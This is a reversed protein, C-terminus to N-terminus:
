HRIFLVYVLVALSNVLTLIAVKGLADRMADPVFALPANLLELLRIVPSVLRPSAVEREASPLPAAAVEDAVKAAAEQKDAAEAEAALDNIRLADREAASMVGDLSETAAGPEAVPPAQTEMPRSATLDGANIQTLLADLEDAASAPTTASQAAPTSPASTQAAVPAAAPSTAAVATPPAAAPPPASEEQAEALLRDIEDGALQALLDDTGALGSAQSMELPDPLDVSAQGM